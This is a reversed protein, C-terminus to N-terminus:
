RSRPLRQQESYIMGARRLLRPLAILTAGYVLLSLFLTVSRGQRFDDAVLKVAGFIMWPVLVWILESLNWRRGFWALAV